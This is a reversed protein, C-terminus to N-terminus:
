LLLLIHLILIGVLPLYIVLGDDVALLRLMVNSAALYDGAARNVQFHHWKLGGLVLHSGSHAPKTLYDRNGKNVIFLIPTHVRTGDDIHITADALRQAGSLYQNFWALVRALDHGM